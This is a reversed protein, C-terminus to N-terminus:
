RCAAAAIDLESDWIPLYIHINLELIDVFHPFLPLDEGERQVQGFDWGVSRNLAM